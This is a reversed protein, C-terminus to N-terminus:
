IAAQKHDEAEWHVANIGSDEAIQSKTHHHDVFCDRIGHGKEKWFHRLIHHLELDIRQHVLHLSCFFFCALHSSINLSLIKYEM